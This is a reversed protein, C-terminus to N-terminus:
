TLYNKDLVKTNAGRSTRKQVCLCMFNGLISRWPGFLVGFGFFRMFLVLSNESCNSPVVWYFLPKSAFRALFNVRFNPLIKTAFTRQPVKETGSIRRSYPNPLYDNQGWHYGHLAGSRQHPNWRSKKRPNKNTKLRVNSNRELTLVSLRLKVPLGGRPPLKQPLFPHNHRKSDLTQLM